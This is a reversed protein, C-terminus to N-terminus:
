WKISQLVSVFQKKVAEQTGEGTDSPISQALYLHVLKGAILTFAHAELKGARACMSGDKTAIRVREEQWFDTLLFTKGSIKAIEPKGREACYRLIWPNESKGLESLQQQALAGSGGNLIQKTNTPVPSELVLVGLERPPSKEAQYITGKAPDIPKTDVVKWTGDITAQKVPTQPFSLTNAKAEHTMCFLAGISLFMRFARLYGDSM